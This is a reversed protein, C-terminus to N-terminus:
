KPGQSRWRWWLFFSTRPPPPARLLEDNMRAPYYLARLARANRDARPAWDGAGAARGTAVAACNLTNVLAVVAGASQDAPPARARKLSEGM